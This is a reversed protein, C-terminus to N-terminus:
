IDQMSKTITRTTHQTTHKAETNRTRKTAHERLVTTRTREKKKKCEMPGHDIAGRKLKKESKETQRATKRRLELTM